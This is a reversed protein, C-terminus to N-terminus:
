PRAFEQQRKRRAREERKGQIFGYNYIYSLMSLKYGKNVEIIENIIERSDGELVSTPQNDLIKIVDKAKRKALCWRLFKAEGEPLEPVNGGNSKLFTETNMLRAPYDKRDRNIVVYGTEKEYFLTVDGIRAGKDCNKLITKVQQMTLETASFSCIKLDENEIKYNM